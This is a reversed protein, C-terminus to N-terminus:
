SYDKEVAIMQEYTYDTNTNCVGYVKTEVLM